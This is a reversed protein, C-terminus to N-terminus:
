ADEKSEPAPTEGITESPALPAPSSPLPTDTVKSKDKTRFPNRAVPPRVPAGSGRPNREDRLAEVETRLSDISRSQQEILGTMKRQQQLLDAQTACGAVGLTLALAGASPWGARILRRIGEAVTRGKMAQLSPPGCAGGSLWDQTGGDGRMARAAHADGREEGRAAALDRRVRRHPEHPLRSAVLGLIAGDAVLEPEQLEALRGVGGGLHRHHGDLLE